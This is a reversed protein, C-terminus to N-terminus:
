KLNYQSSYSLALLISSKLLLNDSVIEIFSESHNPISLAVSLYSEEDLWEAALLSSSDYRFLSKDM